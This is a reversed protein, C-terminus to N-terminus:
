AIMSPHSSLNGPIIPTIITNSAFVDIENSPHHLISVNFANILKYLCVLLFIPSMCNGAIMIISGCSFWYKRLLPKIPREHRNFAQFPYAIDYSISILSFTIKDIIYHSLVKIRKNKDNLSDYLITILKRLTYLVVWFIIIELLM